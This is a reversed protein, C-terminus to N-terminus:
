PKLALYRTADSDYGRDAYLVDPLERPRGPKGSVPPFELVLPMIQRHDSVNAGDSVLALPVGNRDTMVAHKVGPKGRDVPSPSVGEGGRFARTQVGDVVVADHELEANGVVEWAAEALNWGGGVGEAASPGDQGFVGNGFPRGGM